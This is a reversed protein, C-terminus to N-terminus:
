SLEKGTTDRYYARLRKLESKMEAVVDEYMPNDIINNLEHPDRALDFLEWEDIEYYYILKYRDTRVGYHKRVSHAGPYEHYHYYIADRWNLPKKGMMLPVLSKGQMGSPADIGAIDLFTQAYDLNQILDHNESGPEIVGPWRIVFPMKLSEEYMWRKDFWGHDGLYFGQDSSYIVVTDEALGSDDLYDLVRGVQEDVSAICRLYDKVYRQYKWRVLEDGELEAERFAENKPEYAANWLKLQEDTLNGPPKLKLDGENMHEAITMEQTKAASTREEYDDFLDPPEPIVEDDYMTLQDPGPQWNRHPAKHQLMMMFPKDRDRGTQLWGLAEDTIIETTYGIHEERGGPTKLAPNYYPGQGYLVKWFDFGTPDSKLHWKGVLATQYGSDQLLKPFTTQSGDFTDRNTLVGNLHSHKGSLIVARSPCCISNTCFSNHFIMGENAIRDINPTQNIVSGYASIAHPAHDDTFIFLINPRKRKAQALSPFSLAAAGMGMWQMFQKRSINQDM